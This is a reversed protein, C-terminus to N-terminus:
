GEGKRTTETITAECSWPGKAGDQPKRAPQQKDLEHQKRYPRLPMGKTPDLIMMGDQAILKFMQRRMPLDYYTILRGLSVCHQTQRKGRPGRNIPFAGETPERLIKLAVLNRKQDFLADLAVVDDPIFARQAARNFYAQGNLQVTVLPEVTRWSAPPKAFREFAM